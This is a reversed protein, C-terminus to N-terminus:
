IVLQHASSKFFSSVICEVVSVHETRTEEGEADDLNDHACQHSTTSTATASSATEQPEPIALLDPDIHLNRLLDEPSVDDDDDDALHMGPLDLDDEEKKILGNFTAACDSSVVGFTEGSNVEQLVPLTTLATNKHRSQHNDSVLSNWLRNDFDILNVHHSGYGSAAFPRDKQREPTRMAARINRRLVFDHGLFQMNELGSAYSRM